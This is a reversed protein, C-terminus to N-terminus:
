GKGDQQQTILAQIRRIGSVFQSASTNGYGLVLGTQGQKPELYYGSLAAPALQFARAQEVVKQDDIGDISLTLHMGGEGALIRHPIHLEASLVERLQRYRKRYLRRMAALHRAYHGEEIFLALTRQEARHGGRLLAGIAPRAAKALAPPLVMFGMRLSPFLTKSFTGLYVVPANNVMGLMAPVPEGSYRFESDYDDEIIWANHQRALDLLALRRRASLVSGYPFQHSPSTFILAPSPTDLGEWFMGEDDVPMGTMVLGAKAFASKAGGYGPDEVWAVSGPESLLMTCLNVGELAGETMVIQSADCDIGRSLALHRAIAARLSPEGAPDGYGLLASGEERLVRDYLRRWLPLPFYNIAPTGPTFAPVPTDRPVPAPLSAVRSGLAVASDPLAQVLTRQALQAVRTGQRNRLLYGELTLQELAANVTNRSLSLQQALLRSGPLRSGAHLRGCLIAERLAHYLARQLTEEGRAKLAANLLTYFEDGPINM